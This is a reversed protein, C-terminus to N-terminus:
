PMATAPVVERDLRFNGAIGTLSVYDVALLKGGRFHLVQAEYAITTSVTFAGLGSAGTTGVTLYRSGSRVESKRRHTHGDIVLPVAGAAGAALVPDHVALVDPRHLRALDAVAPAQSRKIAEADRASTKNDATFTPDAVGLVRVGGIDIVQSDFVTVNPLSALSRRVEASDHNGPVLYYPAPMATLASGVRAELPLGFSTLDGTDVIASVDFERALRSVFELGLPNLHIDSVHLLATDGPGPEPEAAAARYLSSLQRSLVDVRGRVDDFSDIHRQITRLVRPAEELTGEFQPDEFAGADYTSWTLALLAATGGVAGAAGAVVLTWRRRPVILGTVAGALAAVILARIAFRRVLPTLDESVVRRLASEPEGEALLRQVEQVDLRRVTAVVRIPSRHTAARLAGLPPLELQTSPNSSWSARVGLDGPGITGRTPPGFSLATVAAVMGLGGIAVLVLARRLVSRSAPAEPGV